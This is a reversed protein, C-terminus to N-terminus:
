QLQLDYKEAMARQASLVEEFLKEDKELLDAILGHVFAVSEDSPDPNENIHAIVFKYKEALALSNEVYRVCADHFRRCLDSDPVTMSSLRERDDRIGKVLSSQARGMSALDVGGGSAYTDLHEGIPVFRQDSRQVMDVLEDNYGIVENSDVFFVRYLIGGFVVIGIIALRVVLSNNM